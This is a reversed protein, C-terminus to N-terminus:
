NLILQNLEKKTKVESLGWYKEIIDRQEENIIFSYNAFLKLIENTEDNLTKEEDKNRQTFARQNNKNVVYDIAQKYIM